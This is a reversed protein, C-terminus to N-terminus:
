DFINQNLEVFLNLVLVDWIARDIWFRHITIFYIITCVSVVLFSPHISPLYYVITDYNPCPRFLLFSFPITDYYSRDYPIQIIENM